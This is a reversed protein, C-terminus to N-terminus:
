TRESSTQWFPKDCNGCYFAGNKWTVNNHVNCTCVEEGSERIEGNLIKIAKSIERNKELVDELEETGIEMYEALDANANWQKQLLDIVYEM